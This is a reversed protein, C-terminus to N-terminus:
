LAKQSLAFQNTRLVTQRDSTGQSGQQPKRKSCQDTKDKNIGETIYRITMWGYDNWCTAAAPYIPLPGNLEALLGARNPDEQRQVVEM